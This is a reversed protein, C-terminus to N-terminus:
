LVPSTVHLVPASNYYGEEDAAGSILSMMDPYFVFGPTEMHRDWYPNIFYADPSSAENYYRMMDPRIYVGVSEFYTEINGSYNLNVYHQPTFTTGRTTEEFDTDKVYTGIRLGHVRQQKGGWIVEHEVVYPTFGVWGFLPIQPANPIDDNLIEVEIGVQPAIHFLKFNAHLTESTEYAVVPIRYNPDKLLEIMQLDPVPEPLAATQARQVVPTMDWDYQDSLDLEAIAETDHRVAELLACGKLVALDLRTAPDSPELGNFMEQDPNFTFDTIPTIPREALSPAPKLLRTPLFGRIAELRGQDEHLADLDFPTDADQAVAHPRLLTPGVIAAGMLSVARRRSIRNAESNLDLM